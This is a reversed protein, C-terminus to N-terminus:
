SSDPLSTMLCHISQSKRPPRLAPIGAGGNGIMPRSLLLLQDCLWSRDTPRRTSAATEQDMIESENVKTPHEALVAGTRVRSRHEFLM